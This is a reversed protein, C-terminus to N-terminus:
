SKGEPGLGLRGAFACAPEVVPAAIETVREDTTRSTSPSVSIAAVPHRWDELSVAAVSWIGDENAVDYVAHGVERTGALEEHFRRWDYKAKPTRRALLRDIM